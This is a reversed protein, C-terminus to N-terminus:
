KSDIIFDLAAVVSGALEKEGDRISISKQILHGAEAKCNEYQTNVQHMTQIEMDLKALRKNLSNLMSQKLDSEDMSRVSDLEEQIERQKRNLVIQAEIIWPEVDSVAALDSEIIETFRDWLVAIEAVNTKAAAPDKIVIQQDM